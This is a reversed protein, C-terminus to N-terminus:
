GKKEEGRRTEKEKLWRVVGLLLWNGIWFAPSSESFNFVSDKEFEGGSGM